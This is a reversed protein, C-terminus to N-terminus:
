VLHRRQRGGRRLGPGRGVRHRVHRGLRRGDQGCPLLPPPRPRVPAGRHCRPRVQRRSHGGHKRKQFISQLYIDTFVGLSVAGLSLLHVPALSPPTFYLYLLLTCRPLSFRSTLCGKDLERFWSVRAVQDGLKREGARGDAPSAWPRLAWDRLAARLTPIGLTPRLLPFRTGRQPPMLPAPIPGRPPNTHRWHGNPTRM